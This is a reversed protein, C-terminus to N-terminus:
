QYRKPKGMNIIEQVLKDVHTSPNPFTNWNESSRKRLKEANLLATSTLNDLMPFVDLNEEYAPIHAKLSRKMEQGNAFPRNSCEFHILYWYEFSPNSIALCIKERKAKEIAPFLSSNKHPDETDIVCWIEDTPEEIKRKEEIGCNVVSIPAGKGSVVKVSLTSLRFKQRLSEFYNPETEKGECVIIVVKGPAKQGQRRRFDNKSRAQGFSSKGHTKGKKSL